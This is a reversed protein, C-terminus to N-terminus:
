SGERPSWLSIVFGAFAALVLAASVGVDTWTVLEAGLSCGCPIPLGRVVASVRAAGFATLLLASILWAGHICFAGLLCAGLTIEMWPLLRVLWLGTAPGILEYGYVASLFEYPQQLKSLGTWLLISGVALRLVAYAAARPVKWGGAPWWGARGEAGQNLDAITM